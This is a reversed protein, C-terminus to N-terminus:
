RESTNEDAKKRRIKICGEFGPYTSIKRGASKRSDADDSSYRLLSIIIEFPLSINYGATKLIM